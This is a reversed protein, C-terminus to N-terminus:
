CKEVLLSANKLEAAGISETLCEILLNSNGVSSIQFIDELGIGYVSEDNQTFIHKLWQYIKVVQDNEYDFKHILRKGTPFRVQIRTVTDGSPEIHDQASIRSFPDNNAKESAKRKEETGDKNEHDKAISQRLAYEIQQEESMVDPDFLVEHHVAPNQAGSEFSFKELFLEVDSVWDAIDPVVGCPWLRVREGTMPDLICIYPYADVHYFNCFMEGWQSDVQYQLFIFNRSVVHKVEANYWFDRNLVQCQFETNDQINVLIWKEQERGKMKAADLSIRSMVDFPPKFLEALRRQTLSLESLHEVGGRAGRSLRPAGNVSGSYSGRTFTPLDGDSDLDVELVVLNAADLAGTEEIDDLAANNNYYEDYDMEEDEYDEDDEGEDDLDEFRQNFVGARAPGFIADTSAIPNGFSGFGFSDQLTERRHVNADAERVDDQYAEQRLRQALDADNAAASSGSELFLQVAYEVNDGSLELFQKAVATDEIATFALFTTINDDM